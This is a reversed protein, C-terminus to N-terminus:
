PRPDLTLHPRPDLSRPETSYKHQPYRLHLLQQLTSTCGASGIGSRYAAAPVASGDVIPIVHSAAHGVRVILGNAMTGTWNGQSGWVCGASVCVCLRETVCGRAM